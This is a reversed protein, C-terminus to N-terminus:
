MSVGVLLVVDCLLSRLYLLREARQQIGGAGFVDVVAGGDLVVGFLRLDAEQPAFDFQQPLFVGQQPLLQAGTARGPKARV